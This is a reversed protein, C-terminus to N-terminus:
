QLCSPSLRSVIDAPLIELCNDTMFSKETAIAELCMHFLKPVKVRYSTVANTREEPMRDHTINEVGGFSIFGTETLVTTHFYTAELWTEVKHWTYSDLDLYWVDKHVGFGGTGGFIYMHRGIVSVSHSRRAEPYENTTPDPQTPVSIWCSKSVDFADIANMFTGISPNPWGGGIVLLKDGDLITEHRYRGRPVDDNPLIGATAEHWTKTEIDLKWVDMVFNFGDTGACIWLANREKDYTLSQGFRRSPKPGSIEITNWTPQKDGLSCVHIENSNVLAFPVGTGGFTVLDSGILVASQSCCTEPGENVTPIYTWSRSLLNFRWLQQFTVERSHFRAFGGYVYMYQKKADIVAIHGSRACPSRMHESRQASSLSIRLYGPEIPHLPTHETIVQGNKRFPVSFGYPVHNLPKHAPVRKGWTSDITDNGTQGEDAAGSDTDQNLRKRRSSRWRKIGELFKTMIIAVTVTVVLCVVLAFFYYTTLREKYVDHQSEHEYSCATGGDLDQNAQVIVTGRFVSAFVLITRQAHM